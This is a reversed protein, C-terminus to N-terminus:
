LKKVFGEEGKVFGMKVLYAEHAKSSSATCLTKVGSGALYAYLYKGVSCDRYAPTAYDLTVEMKGDSSNGTIVGVPSSGCCVVYADSFSGSADFSPFFKKVDDGYFDIFYRLFSDGQSVKVVSYEKTSKFLRILNVVNIIVLCFNMIALPYAHVIAAYVISIVSGTANILRLKVVSTMLMSVVVFVSGIYGIIELIVKFDIFNSDVM